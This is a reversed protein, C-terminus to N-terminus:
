LIEGGGGGVIQLLRASITPWSRAFSPHLNVESVQAISFWRLDVTEHNNKFLAGEPELHAVITEYRWDIHDDLHSFQTTVFRSEIGIEENSERLAAELASEHSDRAGGPIGWTDGNHVWPARHQLLIEDARYLLLGAAGNVGWHKSGCRCNVWGDGDRAAMVALKGCRRLILM